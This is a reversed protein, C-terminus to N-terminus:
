LFLNCMKRVCRPLRGQVYRSLLSPSITLLKVCRKEYDTESMLQMIKIDEKELTMYKYGHVVINLYMQFVLHCGTSYNEWHFLNFLQRASFLRDQFNKVTVSNVISGERNFRYHILPIDYFAMRAAHYIITPTFLEDEHLLGPYFSFTNNILYDRKYLYLWVPTALDRINAYSQRFYQKGDLVVGCMDSLGEIYKKEGNILANGVAVDLNNEVAKILLEQLSKDNLLYDDSDLFYVFDGVSEKLGTNRAESLGKNSQSIVKLQRNNKQYELLISYSGDTSGDNVCIVEFDQLKLSLVSEICECLYCEVNYVPIVISLKM